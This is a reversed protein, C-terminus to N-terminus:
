TTPSEGFVVKALASRVPLIELNASRALRILHDLDKPRCGFPSSYEDVDHTFVVLWSKIRSTDEIVKEWDITNYYLKILGFSQLNSLEVSRGNSGRSIGRSTAFVDACICKATLSVDGYPYAFSTMEVDGLRERVFAANKKISSLIEEASLRLVSVHNYLHSGIEHGEEHLALLDDADYQQQGDFRQGCNVGTLYYTGRVGHERLIDGGVTWATKPFDDFSISVIGRENRSPACKM